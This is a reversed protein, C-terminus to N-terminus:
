HDLFAKPPCPLVLPYSNNLGLSAARGECAPGRLSSGGVQNKALEGSKM